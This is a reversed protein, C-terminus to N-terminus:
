RPGHQMILSVFFIGFLVFLTLPVAAIILPIRIWRRNTRIAGVICATSVAAALATRLIATRAEPVIFM